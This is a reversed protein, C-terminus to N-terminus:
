HEHETSAITYYVLTLISFILAQIIGVIVELFMFPLPVGYAVLASISAILVEGAFINGFLRFSLSAVKAIESVIEILGVFFTIPNVLIITPEHRIKGPIEILAKINIFKNFWNWGGVVIIGFINASVVAFLGLALTTNLDATGGRFLATGNYTISGLGPVLGLWNNILIFLFISFVVPFVRKSKERNNTVLDMMGLAGDIITEMFSQFVSPIRSNKARIILSLIIILFVAVWSTLLSNTVNFEGVNFVTEAFLTHEHEEHAGEGEAHTDAEQHSEEGLIEEVIHSNDEINNEIELSM